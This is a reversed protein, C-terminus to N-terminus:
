KLLFTFVNKFIDDSSVADKLHSLTLLGLQFHKWKLLLSSSFPHQSQLLPSVLSSCSEKPRQHLILYLSFSFGIHLTLSSPRSLSLVAPYTFIYLLSKMRKVDKLQLVSSGQILHLTSNLSCLAVPQIKLVIKLVCLIKNHFCNKLMVGTM